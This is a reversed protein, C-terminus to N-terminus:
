INMDVRNEKVYEWSYEEQKQRRSIFQFPIFVRFGNKIMISATLIYEDPSAFDIAMVPDSCISFGDNEYNGTVCKREYM